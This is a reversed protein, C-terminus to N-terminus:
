HNGNPQGPQGNEKGGGAVPGNTAPGGRFATRLLEELSAPTMSENGVGYRPIQLPDTSRTVIGPRTTLLFRYGSYRCLRSLWADYRGYPYAFFEPEVGLHEKLLRNAEALDNLVRVEYEDVTEGRDPGPLYARAVLAPATKGDPLKVFHHQDYSHSAVTVLGSAIMERMQEWKLHSLTPSATEPHETPRLIAFVTAPVKFARLEPYVRTYFSEYGDDFTLVVSEPPLELRGELFSALDPLSIVPLNLRRFIELHEHFLTPTMTGSTTANTSVHHYMLVAVRPGPHPERRSDHDPGQALAPLAGLGLCLPLALVFLASRPMPHIGTM